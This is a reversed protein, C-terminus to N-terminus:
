VWGQLVRVRIPWIGEYALRVYEHTHPIAGRKVDAGSVRVFVDRRARTDFRHVDVHAHGGVYEYAYYFLSAHDDPTNM